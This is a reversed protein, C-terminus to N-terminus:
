CRPCPAVVRRFSPVFGPAHRTCLRAAMGTLGPQRKTQLLLLLPPPICATRHTLPPALYTITDIARPCLGFSAHTHPLCRSAFFFLPRVSELFTLAGSKEESAKRPPKQKDAPQLNSRDLLGKNRLHPNPALPQRRTSRRAPHIVPQTREPDHHYNIEARDNALNATSSPNGLRSSKRSM